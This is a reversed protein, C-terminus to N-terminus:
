DAMGVVYLILGALLLAYQPLVAAKLRASRKGFLFFAPAV